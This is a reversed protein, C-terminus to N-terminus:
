EPIDWPFLNKSVAVVAEAVHPKVNREFFAGTKTESGWGSAINFAEVLMELVQSESCNMLHCKKNFREATSVRIDFGKRTYVQGRKLFTQKPKGCIIELQYEM